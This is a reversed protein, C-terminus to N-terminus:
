SRLTFLPDGLEGDLFRRLQRIHRGPHCTAHEMMQEGDYEQGWRTKIRCHELAHDTVDALAENAYRGVDLLAATFTRSDTLGMPDAFKVPPSSGGCNEAVYQVHGYGAEVVHGLIARG